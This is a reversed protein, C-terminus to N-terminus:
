KVCMNENTYIGITIACEILLMDLKIEFISVRIGFAEDPAFTENHLNWPMNQDHFKPDSENQSIVM